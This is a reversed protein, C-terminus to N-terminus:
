YEGVYNPHVWLFERRKNQVRILGGFSNAPDKERLLAHLERLVPGQNRIANQTDTSAQNLETADGAVLWDGMKESGSLLSTSSKIGFELQEAIAKYETDDTALKTGPIAIPLALKLTVSLIRLVPAARKLWDRTIKIEYVGTGKEGTIVPLPLRSHECWLTLRFKQAIWNPTDWFGLDVPEFSFLRPGDKAPDTLTTLLAQFQEDAQSM